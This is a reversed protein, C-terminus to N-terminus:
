LRGSEWGPVGLKRQRVWELLDGKIVIEARRLDEVNTAGAFFMAMRLERIIRGLYKEARGLGGAYLEKLVPRAIGAFDAGLRLVKAADVGSRIGGTAILLVDPLAERVELVSAATPVGWSAFTKAVEELEDLGRKRARLGEIVVFSTGGAGGVDVGRIGTGRLLAASERSFGEGTQKVIVPVPAERVFERLNTLFGRFDPEGEPQLAEQLPNIHVAIAEAQVMEVLYYVDERPIGKAVQSQGINAIIPVDPAYERVISFTRATSRDELAIRQSGVGLPIGYKQALQALQANVREALPTGGTMGSIVVPASVEKGFFKSSLTVDSLSGSLVSQHVFMVHELWTTIRSDVDEKVSFIIHEDKRSTTFFESM